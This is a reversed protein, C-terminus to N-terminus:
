YAGFSVNPPRWLVFGVDPPNNPDFRPPLFYSAGLPPRNELLAPPDLKNEPPVGPPGLPPNNPLGVWVELAGVPPKNPFADCVPLAGLPPNNPFKGM